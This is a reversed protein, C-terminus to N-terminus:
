EPLMFAAIWSRIWLARASCSKTREWMVWTLLLFMSRSVVAKLLIDLRLHDFVTLSLTLFALFRRMSPFPSFSRARSYSSMSTTKGFSNLSTSMGKRPCSKSRFTLASLSVRVNTRVGFEAESV